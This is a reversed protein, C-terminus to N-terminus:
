IWGQRRADEFAQPLIDKTIDLDILNKPDSSYVKDVTINVNELGYTGLLDHLLSRIDSSDMESNLDELQAVSEANIYPKYPLSRERSEWMNYDHIDRGSKKVVVLKMDELDSQPHWGVWDQSPLARDEFYEALTRERQFDAYEIAEDEGADRLYKKYAKMATRSTDTGEAIRAKQIDEVLKQQETSLSGKVKKQAFLQQLMDINWRSRILHKEYEPFMKMIQNRETQTQVAAFADYYPKDRKQLALLSNLPNGYPNAGFATRRRQLEYEEAAEPDSQALAMAKLRTYKVYKLKDFYEELRNREQIHEPVSEMGLGQYGIMSLFPKIFNAWPRDWFAAETGHIQSSAYSEVATRTKSFLFKHGPSFPTVYELPNDITKTLGEWYTGLAKEFPSYGVEGELIGASTANYEALNNELLRRNVNEGNKRVVAKIEPRDAKIKSYLGYEDGTTEITIKAGPAIGLDNLEAAARARKQNARIEAEEQTLSNDEAISLRILAAQSAKLGAMSIVAGPIEEVEIQTPSIVRSVTVTRTETETKIFKHYPKFPKFKRKQRLQEKTTEFMKEEEPTLLGQSQAQQVFTKYMKTRESYPSVDSLVKYRWSISYDAPAVGQLEPFLTALGRGPLRVDGELIKGFAFGHQFDASREGPGPLWDPQLNRIPNYGPIRREHPYLRRFLETSLFGGGIQMDWYAREIGTARRATELREYQDYFEDSGTLIEKGITSMYGSLGAMETMRYMQEGFVQTPSYQDVPMGQPLEGLEYATTQGFPKPLRKVEFQGAFGPVGYEGYGYGQLEGRASEISEQMSGAQFQGGPGIGPPSAVPRLWESSHMILSPKVIQGITGALLPGILPVDEFAPSSLPFPFEYYHEREWEWPDRIYNMWNWPMLPDLDWKREESGYLANAKAQSTYMPIFHQRYYQIRGGEFPSNHVLFTGNVILHDKHDIEFDYVMDDYEEEEEISFIRVYLKNGIWQFGQVDKYKAENNWGIRYKGKYGNKEIKPITPAIGNALLVVKVFDILQKRSSSIVRRGRDLHGDGRWYGEVLALKFDNPADLFYEPVRKDIDRSSNYFLEFFIRALLSNCIRLVWAGEITKKGTTKFRTTPTIGFYKECIEIIDDVIWRESKAHVTEIMTPIDNKFSLNGEAIFYGFLRGIDENLHIIDPIKNGRAKQIKGNFWNTQAPHILGEEKIYLGVKILNSSKIQLLDEKLSAIPVQVSDGVDILGAEIFEEKRDKKKVHDGDDNREKLVQIMHNDTLGTEINRDLVTKFKLVSGKHHRTYINVIPHSKGDAGLLIDGIKIDKAMKWNMPALFILSKLTNCRGFEWARGKRIPVEKEGSYIAELEESSETGAIAGPLFPIVAAAGLMGASRFWSGSFTRKKLGKIGFITYKEEKFRKAVDQAAMHFEKGTTAAERITALMRHPYTWMGTLGFALPVAGLGLLSTSGPAIEEQREAWQQLGTTEMLKAKQIRAQAYGGLIAGSVAHGTLYDAYQAGKYLAVAPLVRKYLYQGLTRLATGEQIPPFVKKYARTAGTSEFTAGLTSTIKHWATRTAPLEGLETPAVKLLRHITQSALISRIYRSYVQGITQGGAPIFEAGTKIKSGLVASYSQYFEAAGLAGRSRIKTARNLLTTKSAALELRGGRLAVGEKLIAERNQEFVESGVLKKLYAQKSEGEWFKGGWTLDKQRVGRQELPSLIESLRFTTAIHGPSLIEAAKIANLYHDFVRGGSKLPVLGLGFVGLGTAAAYATELRAEGESVVPRQVGGAWKANRASPHVDRTPQDFTPTLDQTPRYDGIPM